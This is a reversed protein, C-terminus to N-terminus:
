YVCKTNKVVLCKELNKVIHTKSHELEDKVNSIVTQSFGYVFNFPNKKIWPLFIQWKIEGLGDLLM